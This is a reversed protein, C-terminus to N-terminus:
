VALGDSKCLLPKQDIFELELVEDQPAGEARASYGKDTKFFDWCQTEMGNEYNFCIMDDQGFWEGNECLEDSYQWKSIRGKFFHEAGYAKGNKSFYLTKGTSLAEFENATMNNEALAPAAIFLAILTLYKM